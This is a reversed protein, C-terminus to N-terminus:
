TSCSSRPCWPVCIIRNRSFMVTPYFATSRLSVMTWIRMPIPVNTSIFSCKVGDEVRIGIAVMGKDYCSDRFIVDGKEM